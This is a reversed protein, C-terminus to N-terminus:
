LLFKILERQNKINSKFCINPTTFATDHNIQVTALFYVTVLNRIHREKYMHGAM